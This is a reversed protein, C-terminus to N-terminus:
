CFETHSFVFIRTQNLLLFNDNSQERLVRISEMVAETYEGSEYKEM